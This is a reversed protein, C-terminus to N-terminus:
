NGLDKAIERYATLNDAITKALEKGSMIRVPQSLDTMFTRFADSSAVETFAAELKALIAPDTGDPAMIGVISPFEAGLGAEKLTPVDPFDPDKTGDLVGLLRLQGDKVLDRYAPVLAANVHGGLVAATAKAAGDFPVHQLKAGTEKAVSAFALHAGGMAGATGYTVAGSKAGAILDDLTQFPSAAPVVIGHYPGSYNLIPTFDELTNYGVNRLAPTVFSPSSTTAILTYGDPEAAAVARMANTGSAGPQNEVVISQGLIKEAMTAIQRASIDTTGGAGYPVVIKIPRNPYDTQAPAAAPLLAMGVMLALSARRTFTM